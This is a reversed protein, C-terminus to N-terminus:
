HMVPAPARPGRRTADAAASIPRAGQAEAAAYYRAALSRLQTALSPSARGAQLEISRAMRKLATTDTSGHASLM